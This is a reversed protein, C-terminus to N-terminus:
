IDVKDLDTTWIHPFVHVYWFCLVKEDEDFGSALVNVGDMALCCTFGQKPLARLERSCSLM